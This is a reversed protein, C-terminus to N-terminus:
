QLHTYSASPIILHPSNNRSYHMSVPRNVHLCLLFTNTTTHGIYGFVQVTKDNINIDISGFILKQM